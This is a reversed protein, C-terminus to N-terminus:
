NVSADSGKPGSSESTPNFRHNRDYNISTIKGKDIAIYISGREPTEAVRHHIWMLLEPNIAISEESKKEFM